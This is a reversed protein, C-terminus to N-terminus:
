QNLAQMQGFYQSNYGVRSSFSLQINRSILIMGLSTFNM